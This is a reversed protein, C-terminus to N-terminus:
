GSGLMLCLVCFFCGMLTAALPLLLAASAFLIGILLVFKRWGRDCFYGFFLQLGEGFFGCLGAVLSAQFIDFGMVTKYIPWIGTCFDVLIHTAWLLVLSNM